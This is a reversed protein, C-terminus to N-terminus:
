ATIAPPLALSPPLAFSFSAVSRDYSEQQGTCLMKLKYMAANALLVRSGEHEAALAQICADRLDNEEKQAADLDEVADKKRERLENEMVTRREEGAHIMAEIDHVEGEHNRKAEDRQKELGQAAAVGALFIAKDRATQYEMPPNTVMMERLRNNHESKLEAKQERLERLETNIEATGNRETQAHDAILKRKRELYKQPANHKEEHLQLLQREKSEVQRRQNEYFQAAAYLKYAILAIKTLVLACGIVGAWPMLTEVTFTTLDKVESTLHTAYAFLEKIMGTVVTFTGDTFANITKFSGEVFATVVGVFGNIPEFISQVLQVVTNMLPGFCSVFVYVAGALIALPLITELM